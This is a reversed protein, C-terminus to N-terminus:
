GELIDGMRTHNDTINIPVWEKDTCQINDILIACASPNAGQGNNGNVIEAFAKLDAYDEIQYPKDETGNGEMTGGAACATEPLLGPILMLGLMLMLTLLGHLTRTEKRKM